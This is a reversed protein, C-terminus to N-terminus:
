FGIITRLVLVLGRAVLIVVFGVATWILIQKARSVRSPDGAATVFMIGAIVVMIPTLVLAFNFLITLVNNVIDTLRASQLPNCICTVNPFQENISSFDPERNNDRAQQVEVNIKICYSQCSEGSQARAELVGGLLLSVLIVLILVKRM